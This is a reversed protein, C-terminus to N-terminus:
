QKNAAHIFYFRDIKFYILAVFYICYFAAIDFQDLQCMVRKLSHMGGHKLIFRYVVPGVYILHKSHHAM